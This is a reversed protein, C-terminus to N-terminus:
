ATKRSEKDERIAILLREAAEVMECAACTVVDGAPQTIAFGIPPQSGVISIQLKGGALIKSIEEPSFEWTSIFQQGGRPLSEVRVSLDGCEGLSQAYDADWNAPAKFNHTAGETRTPKM